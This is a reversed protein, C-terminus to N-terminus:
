NAAVEMQNTSSSPEESTTLDEPEEPFDNNDSPHPSALVITEDHCPTIPSTFITSEYPVAPTDHIQYRTCKCTRRTSHHPIYPTTSAKKFPRLHKEQCEEYSQRERKQKAVMLAAFEHNINAQLTSSPQNEPTTALGAQTPTIHFDRLQVPHYSPNVTNHDPNADLFVTSICCDDGPSVGTNWLNGFKTLGIPISKFRNPNRSTCLEENFQLYEKLQGVHITTRISYDLDRM